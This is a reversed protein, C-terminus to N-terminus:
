YPSMYFEPPPSTIFSNRDGLEYHTNKTNDSQSPQAIRKARKTGRGEAGAQIYSARSAAM